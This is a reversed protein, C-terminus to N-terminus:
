KIMFLYKRCLKIGSLLAIVIVSGIFSVAELVIFRAPYGWASIFRAGNMAVMICIHVFFIGFSIRSIYTVAAKSKKNQWIRKILEFVCAALIPLLALNYDMVDGNEFSFEWYQYGICAAFAIVGVACIVWSPIKSLLGKNLYYGIIVYILYMSFLNAIRLTFEIETDIGYLMFIRNLNPIVMGSIFAIILPILIFKGEMRRLFLNLAPIVMYVCLIMPIYWMNGMTEPDIFLMTEVCRRIAYIVGGESLIHNSHLVTRYWFMIFFWIESTIFLGRLNHKYFRGVDEKNDMKKNLLLVGSIMLFVPVGIRSFVETIAYFIAIMKSLLYVDHVTDLEIFARHIAHNCSISIIAFVRAVDLWYIRKQKLTSKDM